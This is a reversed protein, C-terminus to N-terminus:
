PRNKARIERNPTLSSSPPCNPFPNVKFTNRFRLIPYSEPPIPLFIADLAPVARLGIDHM